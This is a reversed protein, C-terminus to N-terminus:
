ACKQVPRTGINNKGAKNLVSTQNIAIPRKEFVCHTADAGGKGFQSKELKPSGGRAARATVFAPMAALKRWGGLQPLASFNPGHSCYVRRLRNVAPSTTRHREFRRETPIVNPAQTPKMAAPAARVSLEPLSSVVDIASLSRGAAIGQDRDVAAQQQDLQGGAEVFAEGALIGPSRDLGPQCYGRCGPWRDALREWLALRANPSLGTDASSM